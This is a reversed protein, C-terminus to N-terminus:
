KAKMQADTVMGAESVSHMSHLSFYNSCHNHLLGNIKIKPLM